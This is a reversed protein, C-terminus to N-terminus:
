IKCSPNFKQIKKILNLNPIFLQQNKNLDRPQEPLNKTSIQMGDNGTNFQLM